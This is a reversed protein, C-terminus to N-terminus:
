ADEDQLPHVGDRWMSAFAGGLTPAKLLADQRTRVNALVRRMSPRIREDVFAVFSAHDDDSWQDAITRWDALRVGTPVAVIGPPAGDPAPRANARADATLFGSPKLTLVDLWRFLDDVTQLAMLHHANFPSAFDTLLQRLPAPDVAIELGSPLTPMRRPNDVRGQVFALPASPRPRPWLKTVTDFHSPGRLSLSLRSVAVFHAHPDRHRSHRQRM